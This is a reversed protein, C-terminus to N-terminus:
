GGDRVYKFRNSEHEPFNSLVAQQTDKWDPADELWMYQPFRAAAPYTRALAIAAKCGSTIACHIVKEYAERRLQSALGQEYISLVQHLWHASSFESQFRVREAQVLLNYDIHKRM